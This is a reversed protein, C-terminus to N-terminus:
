ASSVALSHRMVRTETLFVQSRLLNRSRSKAESQQSKEGETGNQKRLIEYGNARMEQM